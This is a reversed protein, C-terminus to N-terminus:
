LRQFNWHDVLSGHKLELENVKYNPLYQM